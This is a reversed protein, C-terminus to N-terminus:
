SVKLIVWGVGRGTGDEKGIEEAYQSYAKILVDSADSLIDRTLLPNHLMDAGSLISEKDKFYIQLNLTKIKRKM